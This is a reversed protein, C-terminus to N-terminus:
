EIEVKQRTGWGTRLCTLMGYIRLTRLVTSSWVIALPAMAYIMMRQKVSMDSRQVSLYRIGEVYGIVVPVLLLRVSPLEHYIIPNIIFLYVIIAANALMLVWGLVQRMFGWSHIPLFRIRWWSRIFSGRMWRMQQRVHHSLNVPMDAFVIATPQQITKGMLMAFLTLYSDDSFGVQRGFFIESTYGYECAADVVEKRYFALGGSNVMVSELVSMSSRDILQQMGVFLLDVIKSLINQQANKAVVLGAVSQVESDMFCRLGEEIANPDLIGDSDLTVIITNPQHEIKQLATTHAVRKGQNRQKFWHAEIDRSRSENRLLKRVSDYSSSDKSGDDVVYIADPIRTQYFLSAIGAELSVASENYVPILIIVRFNDIYQADNLIGDFVSLSLQIAIILGCAVYFLNIPVDNGTHFRWVEWVIWGIALTLLLAVTARKQPRYKAQLM